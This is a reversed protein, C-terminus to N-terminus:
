QTAIDAAGADKISEDVTDLPADMEDRVDSHVDFHADLNVDFHADLSGDGADVEVDPEADVCTAAPECVASDPEETGGGDVDLSGLTYTGGCGTAALLAFLSGIRRTV